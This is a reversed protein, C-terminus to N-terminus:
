KEQILYEGIESHRIQGGTNATRSMFGIGMLCIAIIGIAVYRKKFEDKIFFWIFSIVGTSVTFINAIKALKEHNRIINKDINQLTEITHEAKEGSAYTIVAFIASVIFTFMAIKAVEESRKRIFYILLCFGFILGFLPAHNVILHLHAYNM